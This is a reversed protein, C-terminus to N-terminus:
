DNGEARRFFNNFFNAATPGGIGMVLIAVSVFDSAGIWSSFVSAPISIIAILSTVYFGGKENYRRVRNTLAADERADQVTDTIIQIVQDSTGPRLEDWTRMNDADPLFPDSERAHITTNFQQLIQVASSLKDKDSPDIGLTQLLDRATPELLDPPLSPLTPEREGGVKTEGSM